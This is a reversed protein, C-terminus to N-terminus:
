TSGEGVMYAVDRAKRNSYSKKKSQVARLREHILKVIELADRVLYTGVLRAKRPDFWGVPSSCRRGYLTEYSAMHISAQYNNNYAFKALLLFHDWSGDPRQHEYKVRQYNLCRGVYEVIDKKM